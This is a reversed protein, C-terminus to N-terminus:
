FLAASRCWFAAEFDMWESTLDAVIQLFRFGAKKVLMRGFLPVWRGIHDKVFKKQADLVIQTKDAGDHCRAYSEKYALFHM